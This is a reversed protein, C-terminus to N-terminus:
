VDEFLQQLQFVEDTVLLSSDGTFAELSNGGYVSLMKIFSCTKLYQQISVVSSVKNSTTMM